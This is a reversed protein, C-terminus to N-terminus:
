MHSLSLEHEQDQENGHYTIRRSESLISDVRYSSDLKTEQCKHDNEINLKECFRQRCEDMRGRDDAKYYVDAGGDELFNVSFMLGSEALEDKLYVLDDADIRYSIVDKEMNKVLFDELGVWLLGRDQEFEILEAAKKADTDQDARTIVALGEYPDEARDRIIEVHDVKYFDFVERVHDLLSVGFGYTVLEGGDLVYEHFDAINRNMEIEDPFRERLLESIFDLLAEVTKQHEARLRDQENNVLEILSM